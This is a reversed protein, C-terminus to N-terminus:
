VPFLLILLETRTEKTSSNRDEKDRTDRCTRHNCGRTGEHDQDECALSEARVPDAVDKRRDQDDEEEEVRANANVVDVLPVRRDELHPFSNAGRMRCTTKAREKFIM